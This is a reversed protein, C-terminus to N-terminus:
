MILRIIIIIIIITTTAAATATTTMMTEKICPIWVLIGSVFWTGLPYMTSDIRDKNITGRNRTGANARKNKYTLVRRLVHATGM